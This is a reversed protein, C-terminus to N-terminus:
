AEWELACTANFGGGAPLILMSRVPKLGVRQCMRIASM